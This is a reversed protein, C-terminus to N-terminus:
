RWARAADSWRTWIEYALWEAALCPDDRDMPTDRFWAAPQEYAVGQLVLRFLREGELRMAPECRPMSAVADMADRLARQADEDLPVRRSIPHIRRNDIELAAISWADPGMLVQGDVNWAGDAERPIQFRLTREGAETADEDAGAEQAAGSSPVAGLACCFATAAARVRGSAGRRTESRTENM